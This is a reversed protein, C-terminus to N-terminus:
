STIEEESAVKEWLISLSPDGHQATILDSTKLPLDNFQDGPKRSVGDKEINISPGTNTGASKCDSTGDATVTDIKDDNVNLSKDGSGAIIYEDNNFLIPLELNDNNDIYNPCTEGLREIDEDVESPITCMHPLPSVEGGPLDNGLLLEVGNMPLTKTVGVQVKVLGCQLNIWILSLSLNNGGVGQIIVSENTSIQSMPAPFSSLLLLSQQTGTDRLINVEHAESRSLSVTGVSMFPEYSKDVNVDIPKETVFKSLKDCMKVNDNTVKSVLHSMGAKKTKCKFYPHGIAKCFWCPLKEYKKLKDSDNQTNRSSGGSKEYTKSNSDGASPFRKVWVMKHVNSRKHILAFVDAKVGADRLNSVEKENLYM